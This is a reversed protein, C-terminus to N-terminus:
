PRPFVTAYGGLSATSLKMGGTTPPIGLREIAAAGNMMQSIKEELTM